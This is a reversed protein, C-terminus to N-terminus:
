IDNILLKVSIKCATLPVISIFYILHYLRKFTQARYNPPPASVLILSKPLMNMDCILNYPIVHAAFIERM